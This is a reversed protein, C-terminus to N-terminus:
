DDSESRKRWFCLKSLLKGLIKFPKGVVKACVLVVSDPITRVLAGVPLSFMGVVIALAWSPGDVRTVQFAVGGFNVIIAQLGVCGFFICIFFKNAWINSFM